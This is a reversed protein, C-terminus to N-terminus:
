IISSYVDDLNQSILFNWQGTSLSMLCKHQTSFDVEICCRVYEKSKIGSGRKYTRLKPPM